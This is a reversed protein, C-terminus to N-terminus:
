SGVQVPASSTASGGAPDNVTVQLRYEGSAVHPVQVEVELREFGPRDFAARASLRAAVGPVERGTGDFLKAQIDLAGNALGHTLCYFHGATGPALRVLPEPLYFENAAAVFPFLPDTPRDKTTARVVLGSGMATPFLPPSTVVKGPAFAPVTLALERLGYNGSPTVRALIRVKYDGPPLFLSGALRLNGQKLRDGLKALDLQLIQGLWDRVQGGSDFVYAFLDVTLGGKAKEALLDAGAVEVVVPVFARQADMPLPVLVAGVGVSGGQEGALLLQATDLQREVPRKQDWPLPAYYGPRHVLRAGAPGNKLRVKIQRYKGDLKLDEPQYALLYTISTADLMQRMADGLDGFNEFLQGGTGKAMAFLTERGSPRPHQDGGTTMGGIDVAQIVCDTRRLEELMTELQSQVRTDGFRATSDVKWIEGAAVDSATQEMEAQDATGTLLKSDFGQSFLVVYKRGDVNSMVHGLDALNRTLAGVRAVDNQRVAQDEQRALDQLMEVMAADAASRGPSATQAGPTAVQSGLVDAVILRLADKGRELLKENGLTDLAIDVQRRDSTFGILLQTGVSTSYTAVAVLDSPHLSDAIVQRVASRAKAIATPESNALDLLMLFHRRGAAPPPTMATGPQTVGQTLDIEEFGTITQVKRGDVIEFNERGLGRVPKGDVLVQVPVEIAVVTTAEAYDHRAAAPAPSRSAAALLLLTCVISSTNRM